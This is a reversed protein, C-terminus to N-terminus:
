DVATEPIVSFRFMVNRDTREPSHNRQVLGTAYRDRDTKRRHLRGHLVAKHGDLTVLVCGFEPNIWDDKISTAAETRIFEERDLFDDFLVFRFEQFGPM